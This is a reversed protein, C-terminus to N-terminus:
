NRPNQLNSLSFLTNPLTTNFRASTTEIRTWHEAEGSPRMTIVLPYARGGISGVRETTMARVLRMDQDFYSEGLMVGDARVRVVLKGWVVPAGAHPVAEITYITHGGNQESGLLRHAYQTLIDDAKSLDDYSFDSGMWSQAMMSAPLRIVQNLRPNFIWTQDGLTLTANGADRAPATFRVLSDDDGRTWAALSLTREWDPRHVTMTLETYSSQARWNDFAARLLADPDPEAAAPVIAAAFLCLAALCRALTLKM